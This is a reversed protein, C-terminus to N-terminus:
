LISWWRQSVFLPLCCRRPVSKLMGRMRDMSQKMRIQQKGIILKIQFLFVPDTLLKSESAQAFQDYTGPVIGPLSSQAQDVFESLKTHPIRLNSDDNHVIKLFTDMSLQKLDGITKLGSQGLRQSYTTGLGTIFLVPDSEYKTGVIRKDIVWNSGGYTLNKIRNIEANVKKKMESIAIINKGSYNFPKANVGEKIGDENEVVAVGLCMRVEKEYKVQLTDVKTEDYAGNELDLKGNEDRPFVAYHRNASSHGLGGITCKKHTEDWWAIMSTTLADLNSPDFCPRLNGDENYCDSPIDEKKLVGFRILLQTNWNYRARAWASNPDDSGQSRKGVKLLKPNLRKVLNRISSLTLSPLGNEKRHQNAMWQTLRLSFGSEQCDAVIQAEEGDVSLNPPRGIRHKTEGAYEIKEDQCRLVERLIPVIRCTMTELDLSKRIKSAIGDVGAWKSEDEEAGFVNVFVYAIAIRRASSPLVDDTPEVSEETYSDSSFDIDFFQDVEITASSDVSVDSSIISPADYNTGQRRLRNSELDEVESFDVEIAKFEDFENVSETDNAPETDKVGEKYKCASKRTHGGQSKKKFVM